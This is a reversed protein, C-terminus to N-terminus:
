IEYVVAANCGGFGSATKLAFRKESKTQQKSVTIPESVGLTEFNMSPLIMKEKLSHFTIVSELVGAAGLTHGFHPKLSHLPVDALGALRFAKAEMEDNFVTATGHASVFSLDGASVKSEQMASKVAFALEAGTRSPGSIHNADNSTAGDLVKIMGQRYLKEDASLVVTAACEGLNVGDRLADFPKCVSKSMAGLAYFGSLVFKSLVDAGTIVVHKYQGEYLLRKGILIALVGSICANSVVLPSNAANFFSAIKQATAPLSVQERVSQISATNEIFEINGKTTSLIFLTDKCSLSVDTQALAEKVSQICISEFRTHADLTAIEDFISAHFAEPLLANQEVKKIASLGSKVAHYNASSTSGLPTTINDAVVFISKM